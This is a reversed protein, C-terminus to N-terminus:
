SFLKRIWMFFREFGNTNIESSLFQEIQPRINNPYCLLSLATTFKQHLYKKDNVIVFEESIFGYRVDTIGFVAEVAKDMGKLLSGGGTLVIGNIYDILETNELENRIRLLIEELRPKIYDILTSQTIRKKNRKDITYVEIERDEELLISMAYGFNEKIKNAEEFPIHLAFAIDNTIHFSGIPIDKSFRIKGDYYVVITTIHDGVDILLSGLKKEEESLVMEALPFAHYVYEKLNFGANAIARSINNLHSVGASVIHVNTELINGEMGIPNEFGKEKDVMFEQPIVHIIEKESPIHIAKANEIVNFVDESTIIRDSRPITHVGTNNTSSIHTGRIGVYLDDIRIKITEEAEELLNKIETSFASINTVVGNKLGKKCSKFNAYLLEIKNDSLIKGCACVINESGIDVSTIIEEKDM